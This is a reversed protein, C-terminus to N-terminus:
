SNHGSDPNSGTDPQNGDGSSDSGNNPGRDNRNGYDLGGDTNSCQQDVINPNIDPMIGGHYNGLPDWWGYVCFKNGSAKDGNFANHDPHSVITVEGIGQEINIVIANAETLNPKTMLQIGQNQGVSSAWTYDTRIITKGDKDYGIQEVNYSRPYPVVFPGQLNSTTNIEKPAETSDMSKVLWKNITIAHVQGTGNKINFIIPQNQRVDVRISGIGTSIKTHCKTDTWTRTDLSADGIGLDTQECQATYFSGIATNVGPKGSLSSSFSYDPPIMNVLIMTPLTIFVAVLSAVVSIWSTRRRMLLLVIASVSLVLTLLAPGLLIWTRSPLYQRTITSIAFVLLVLALAILHARKGPGPRPKFRPPPPTYVPPQPPGTFSTPVPVPGAPQPAQSRVETAYSAQAYTGVPATQRPQPPIQQSVPVQNYAPVTANTATQNPGPNPGAAFGNASGHPPQSTHPNAGPGAPPVPSNVPPQNSNMPAGKPSDSNTKPYTSLIYILAGAIGVFLAILALLVIVITSSVPTVSMIIGGFIVPITLAPVGFLAILLVIFAGVISSRPRGLILLEMEIDGKEDPLLVWLVLYAFLVPTFFLSLLGVVVRVLTLDYGTRNAIAACVGGLLSEKTRTWDGARLTNFFNAGFHQQKQNM